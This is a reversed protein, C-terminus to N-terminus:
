RTAQEFIHFVLMGGSLQVSGLHKGTDSCDHGTGRMLFTCYEKKAHPDVRFWMCPVNHQNEIHLLESGEPIQLEFRDQVPCEYKWVTKM